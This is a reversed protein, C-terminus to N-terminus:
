KGLFTLFDDRNIDKLVEADGLAIWIMPNDRLYKGAARVVDDQGVADIRDIVLLYDRFDGHYVVSSAIQSAISINSQQGSYFGTLFQQKYFPLADAIPVFTGEQEKASVQPGIGGKGAASASVKGALCQGRLLVSISDDVLKKVKGPVATKFVTLDGYGASFDHLAAWADYCAGNETRVIQFLIDDLLTFAVQIGPTEPSDPAPLAFDARVYALGQSPPFAEVILDPKVTGAFPPVAPRSFEKKPMAGFTANLKAVLAAPDFNGVAVIFIRGSSVTQEYYSKLDDLTLSALSSETGDFSAAYPHGSFFRQNLDDVSKSYPDSRSQQKAIRFDSVVRPFEEANWAPHLFADAYADFLADFYADITFLNLASTDFSMYSPNISASDEFLLRQLEAYSYRASGRTLMTLMVGEIGEKGPPALSAQGLLVTKLAVIRNSLSRKMVVPIGNDLTVTTFSPLNEAAFANLGGADIVSQDRTLQIAQAGAAAAALLAALALLIAKRTKM